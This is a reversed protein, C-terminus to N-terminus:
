KARTIFMFAVNRPRTESGGTAQTVPIFDLGSTNFGVAGSLNANNGVREQNHVHSKFEDLQSSLLVRGSDVGRGNDFGRIFEGRMDPLVNSPYIASLDPFTVPNFAQGAFELHDVPIVANPSIILDGIVAGSSGSPNLLEWNDNSSNYVMDMEGATDGINLPQNGNKVITKAALGNPAFTPNTITNTGSARVLVRTKDLLSHMVPVFDVTIGDVTGTANGIYSKVITILDWEAPSTVPNKNNNDNNVSQYYKNNTGRVIDGQDYIETALWPGLQGGSSTAGVPDFQQIQVDDSDFLIVNYTGTGFVSFALRGAGDLDVPNTNEMGSTMAADKFTDKDTNNSGSEFFKLKGDILPNGANDFFQTFAAIIRAM